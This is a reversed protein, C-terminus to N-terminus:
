SVSGKLSLWPVCFCVVIQSEWCWLVDNKDSGTTLVRVSKSGVIDVTKSPVNDFYFPTEDMNVIFDPELRRRNRSIFDRFSLVDTDYTDPLKQSQSTKARLTLNNRTM